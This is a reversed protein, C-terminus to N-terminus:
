ANRGSRQTERQTPPPRRKGRGEGDPTLEMEQQLEQKRQRLQEGMAILDLKADKAQPFIKDQEEEIHQRIYNSLVMFKADFLEDGAQMMQLDNILQTASQHEVLAQDILMSDDITDRLMPYVLAEELETHITLENCAMDVLSQKADEDASKDACMKEFDDFMKLVKQHDATLMSIADDSKASTSSKENM